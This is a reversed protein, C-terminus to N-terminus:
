QRLITTLNPEPLEGSLRARYPMFSETVRMVYNRTERFPLNEIWDVIEDRHLKRPDGYEVQWRDARSPGANYAIAMLVPNADYRASLQALYASGLRANYAPDSRLRALNYPVGVQGSVERATAPMLQMLGRAGAPSIVVPDFESERRAISLAFVEDVPLDLGAPTAIPFYTKWLELGQRAAEKALRLAIHPEELELALDGLQGQETRTQTEALHVFFRESLDRLGSRNLLRAAEFVTANNFDAQRWDPFAETGVIEAPAPFGGREAALQGYFSSQYRAGFAYAEQAAESQGLAEHARGTWYGARGLSIPTAVVAEFVRFHELAQQPADLYRLAIFGSLWELDAFATGKSLYHSSAVSYAQAAKGDRLLSRALTRRRPAWAEPRGLAEVSVSREVVLDVASSLGKRARWLFREYALGPDDQLTEPVAEILEDVGQRNARLAARAAALAQWDESVLPLMRQIDAGWDQWLAADLRAEHLDRVTLGNRTIFADHEDASMPFSLWARKIEAAGRVARDTRILAEALRLSGTATRPSQPEFFAIVASPDGGRPISGECRQRLLPMGPWDGNRATFDRCEAFSGQAGRLRTWDVVDQGIQGVVLPKLTDVEVWDGRAAATIVGSLANRTEPSQAAAPPAFSLALLALTILRKM